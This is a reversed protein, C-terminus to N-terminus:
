TGSSRGGSAIGRLGAAVGEPGFLHLTQEKGDPSMKFIKIRGTVGVYFGNAEDGESFIMQGRQFVREMVIMALDELHERPLGEFLPIAAINQIIGMPECARM